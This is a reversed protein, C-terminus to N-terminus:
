ATLDKLNQLHPLLPRLAVGHVDLDRMEPSSFSFSSAPNPGKKKRKKVRTENWTRSSGQAKLQTVCSDILRLYSGAENVPTGM